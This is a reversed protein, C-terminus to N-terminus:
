KKGEEKNVIEMSDNLAREDSSEFYLSDDEEPPIRECDDLWICVDCENM